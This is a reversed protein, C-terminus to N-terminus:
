TIIDAWAYIEPLSVYRVGLATCVPIPVLDHALLERGFGHLSQAVLVGIKGTGVIGVIRQYLDFGLLSELSFNGERVRAYARYIKHSLTLILGVTHEAVAYPSYAPVRAVMVGLEHAATLDVQNVGACRLVILRIQQQALRGVVAADLQDNVFTCIAPFGQALTCTELTLRPEFFTLAHGHAANAAPLLVHDYAKTNFVAVQM